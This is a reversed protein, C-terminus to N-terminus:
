KRPNFFYKPKNFVKNTMLSKYKLPASSPDVEVWYDQFLRTIFSYLEVEAVRSGICMRPGRGFPMVLLTHDHLLNGSEARKMKKEKSWRSPDFITPNEVIEPSMSKPWPQMMLCTGAPVEYGQLEIPKELIRLSGSVTPTLRFSEKISNRLFELKPIDTATVDRGGLVQKLEAQLGRQAEPTRALNYILWQLALSTTDVGAFLFGATNSSMENLTLESRQAVQSVYSSHDGTEKAKKLTELILEGGMDWLYDMAQFLREKVQPDPRGHWYMVKELYEFALLGEEIYKKTEPSSYTLGGLRKNFLISGILEFSVRPIFEHMEHQFQPALRSADASVKSLVPLYSEADSPAFFKKQLATRVRKWEENKLFLVSQALNRKALFESM